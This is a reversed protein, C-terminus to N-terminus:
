WCCRGQTIEHMGPAGERAKAARAKMATRAADPPTILPGFLAISAVLRPQTAAVHQVVITGMSHGLWHARTVGLKTCVDLVAAVYREISL